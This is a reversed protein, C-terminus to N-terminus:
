DHVAGPTFSDGESFSAIIAPDYKPFERILRRARRHKIWSTYPKAGLNELQSRAYQMCLLFFSITGLPPEMWNWAFGGVELPTELDKAEPVDATVYFENFWLVTDIEFILPISGFAAVLASAIGIKYPLTYLFLGRRNSTVMKQFIPEADKWSVNDVAMIERILREERADQDGGIAM